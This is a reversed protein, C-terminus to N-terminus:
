IVWIGQQIDKNKQGETIRLALRRRQLLQLIPWYLIKFCCNRCIEGADMFIHIAHINLWLSFVSVGEM